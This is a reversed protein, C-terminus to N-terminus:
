QVGTPFVAFREIQEKPMRVRELYFTIFINRVRDKVYKERLESKGVVFGCRGVMVDCM